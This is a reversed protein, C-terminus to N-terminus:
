KAAARDTRRDHERTDERRLVERPIEEEPDQVQVRMARSREGNQSVAMVVTSDRCDGPAGDETGPRSKAEHSREREDKHNGSRLGQVPLSLKGSAGLNGARTKEAV